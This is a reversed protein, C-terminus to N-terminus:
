EYSYTQLSLSVPLGLISVANRKFNAMADSLCYATASPLNQLGSLNEPSACVYWIGNDVYSYLCIIRM